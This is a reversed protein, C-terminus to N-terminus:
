PYSTTRLVGQFYSRHTIIDIQSSPCLNSLYGQQVDAYLFSNARVTHIRNWTNGMAGCSLRHLPLISSTEVFPSYCWDVLSDRPFPAWRPHQQDHVPDSPWGVGSPRPQLPILDAMMALPSEPDLQVLWRPVSNDSAYQRGPPVSDSRRNHHPNQFDTGPASTWNSNSRSVSLPLQRLDM